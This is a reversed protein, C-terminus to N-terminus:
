SPDTIHVHLGLFTSESLGIKRTSTLFCLCSLGRRHFLVVIWRSDEVRCGPVSQIKKRAGGCRQSAQGFPSHSMLNVNRHRVIADLSFQYLLPVLGVPAAQFPSRQDVWVRPCPFHSRTSPLTYLIERNRSHYQFQQSTCSINTPSPSSCQIFIMLLAIHLM